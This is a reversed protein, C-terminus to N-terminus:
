RRRFRSRLSPVTLHGSINVLLDAEGARDLLGAVDGDAELLAANDGLDFAEVVAAFYDRQAPTGASLEELLFVECGLRRLGLVWSLRVWAEGGHGAKNAGAGAVGVSPM